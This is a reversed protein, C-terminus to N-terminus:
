DSERIKIFPSCLGSQCSGPCNSPSPEGNRCTDQLFLGVCIGECLRKLGIDICDIDGSIRGHSLFAGYNFCHINQLYSADVGDRAIFEFHRGLYPFKGMKCTLGAVCDKWLKIKDSFLSLESVKAVDVTYGTALILFDSQIVGKNTQLAIQNKSVSAGVISTSPLLEFNSFSELRRISEEPPPIGLEFGKTLFDAKEKDSLFFFGYQFGPYAFSAFYNETPLSTRRMVMQVSKAGCELATAAADFGSAGVGIVTVCKNTFKTTDIHDATHAWLDHPISHVFEPLERGGCGMRGTALVVKKAHIVAGDAFVLKLTHDPNPIIQSLKAHNHVSLNLTKKFWQLYKGWLKTPIKGLAEWKNKGYKAEFYARFTLHPIGISPGRLSKGSRLTKMRATTLWPGEKGAPAQDIIQINDVGELKLHAALACGAMGAGIIVVDSIQEDIVRWKATPYNLLLLDKQVKENLSQATLFAPALLLTVLWKKLM